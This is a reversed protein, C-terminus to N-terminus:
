QHIINLEIKRGDWERNRCLPVSYQYWPANYFLICSLPMITNFTYYQLTCTVFFLCSLVNFVNPMWMVNNATLLTDSHPKNQFKTSVLM